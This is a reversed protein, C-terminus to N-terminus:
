RPEPEEAIQRLASLRRNWAEATAAMSEGALALREPVPTFRVERGVRTSTVLGARDLVTLHKIIAPRSVPLRKAVASASGGDMDVLITLVRWRTADSLAAFFVPDSL